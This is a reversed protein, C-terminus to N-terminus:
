QRYAEATLRERLLYGELAWLQRRADEFAIREAIERSFNGPSAAASKGIVTYGNRLTLACVTCTTDPVLWFQKRADGALGDIHEPTLRPATKGAAQLEAEIEQESTMKMEELLEDAMMLLGPFLHTM